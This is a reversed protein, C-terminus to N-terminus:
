NVYIKVTVSSDSYRVNGIRVHVEAKNNDGDAVAENAFTVCRNPNSNVSVAGLKKSPLGLGDDEYADIGYTNASNDVGSVCATVAGSPTSFTKSPNWFLPKMSLTDSGIYAASAQNPILMITLIGMIIFSALRKM